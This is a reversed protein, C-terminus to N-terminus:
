EDKDEEEEEGDKDEGEKEEQAEEQRKEEMEKGEGQPQFPKYARIGAAVGFCTLALAVGRRCDLRQGADSKTLM